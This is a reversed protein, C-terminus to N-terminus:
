RSASVRMAVAILLARAWWWSVLASRCASSSAMSAAMVALVVARSLYRVANSFPVMSSSSVPGRRRSSRVWISARLIRRSSIVSRILSSGTAGDGLVRAFVRARRSCTIVLPSEASRLAMMSSSIASIRMM